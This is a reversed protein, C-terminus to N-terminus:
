AKLFVKLKDAKGNSREILQSQAAGGDAGSEVSGCAEGLLNGLLNCTKGTLGEDGSLVLEVGKGRLILEDKSVAGDLSKGGIHHLDGVVHAPQGGAGAVTQALDENGFVLGAGGDHGALDVGGLAFGDGHHGDLDHAVIGGHANGGALAIELQIHEHRHQDVIEELGGPKQRFGHDGEVVVAHHADLGVPCFHAMVQVIRQHQHSRQIGVDAIFIGCLSGLLCIFVVNGKLFGANLKTEKGCISKVLNEMGFLHNLALKVYFPPKNCIIM